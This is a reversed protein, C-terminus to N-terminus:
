HMDPSKRTLWRRRWLCRDHPNTRSSQQPQLRKLQSSSNACDVRLLCQTVWDLQGLGTM